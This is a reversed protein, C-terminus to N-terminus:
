DPVPIKLPLPQKSWQPELNQTINLPASALDHRQKLRQRNENDELYHLLINMLSGNFIAIPPPYQYSSVFPRNFPRLSNLIESCSCGTLGRLASIGSGLPEVHPIGLPGLREAGANLRGSSRGCLAM